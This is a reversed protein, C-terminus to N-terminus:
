ATPSSWISERFRLMAWRSTATRCQHTRGDLDFAAYSEDDSGNYFVVVLGTLSTNGTGGDYLEVFETTDTGVQDSDVENIVVNPPAVPNVTLIAPPSTVGRGTARIETSGASVGTALGNQDITAVSTNSSQWSFIVGPVENNSADFAKATFQQQAGANITASAPSVEVRAIAPACSSFPAGNIQTGPSFARTGGSAALHQAFNGTIDPSRTVSQDNDADIGSSGGYAM